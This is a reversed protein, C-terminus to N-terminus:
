TTRRVALASTLVCGQETDEDVTGADQLKRLRTSSKRALPKSRWEHKEPTNRKAKKGAIRHLNRTYARVELLTAGLAWEVIPCPEECNEHLPCKM